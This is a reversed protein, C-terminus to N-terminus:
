ELVKVLTKIQSKFFHKWESEENAIITKPTALYTEMEFSDNMNVCLRCAVIFFILAVVLRKNQGVEKGGDSENFNKAQLNLNARKFGRILCSRAFGSGGAPYVAVPSRKNQRVDKSNTKRVKMSTKRKYPLTLERSAAYLVPALLVLDERQTFLSRPVSTKASTKATRKEESENFNKAQLNLNAREQLPTHPM